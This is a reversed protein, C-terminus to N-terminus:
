GHEGAHRFRAPGHGPIGSGVPRYGGRGARLSHSGIRRPARRRGNNKDYPTVLRLVRVGPISALMDIQNSEMARMHSGKGAVREQFLGLLKRSHGCSVSPPLLHDPFDGSWGICRKQCHSKGELFKRIRMPLILLEGISQCAISVVPLAGMATMPCMCECAKCKGCAQALADFTQPGTGTGQHKLGAPRRGRVGARRAKAFGLVSWPHPRQRRHRAGSQRVM